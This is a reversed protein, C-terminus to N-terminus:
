LVITVCGRRRKWRSLCRTVCWLASHTLTAGPLHSCVKLAKPFSHSVLLAFIHLRFCSPCSTVECVYFHIFTGSKLFRFRIIYSTYRSYYTVLVCFYRYSVTHWAPALTFEFSKIILILSHPAFIFLKLNNFSKAIRVHSFLSWKFTSVRKLMCFYRFNWPRPSETLFRIM